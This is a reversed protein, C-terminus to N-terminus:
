DAGRLKIKEHMTEHNNERGSSVKTRAHITSQKPFVPKRAQLAASNFNSVIRSFCDSTDVSDNKSRVTSPIFRQECFLPERGGVGEEKGALIANVEIM